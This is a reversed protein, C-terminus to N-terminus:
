PLPVRVFLAGAARGCGEKSETRPRHGQPLVCERTGRRFDPPPFATPDSDVILGPPRGWPHHDGHGRVEVPERRAPSCTAGPDTRAGGEEEAGGFGGDGGYLRAM